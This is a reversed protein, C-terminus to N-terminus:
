ISRKAALPRAMTLPKPANQPPAFAAQLQAKRAAEEQRYKDRDKFYQEVAAQKNPDTGRYDILSPDIQPPGMPDEAFKAMADPSFAAQPGMREALHANMPSFAALRNTMQQMQSSRVQGHRQQLDKALQKQARELAKSENSRAGFISGVVPLRSAFDELGSLDLGGGGGGGAGNSGGTARSSGGNGQYGPSGPGTSQARSSM